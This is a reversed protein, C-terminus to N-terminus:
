LELVNFIEGVTLNSSDLLLVSNRLEESTDTKCLLSLEIMYM